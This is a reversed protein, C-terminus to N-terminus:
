DAFFEMLAPAVIEPPPGHEQGEFSRLQADPLLETLTRASRQQWPPSAGGVMVLTPMTVSTRWEAPIPHGSM